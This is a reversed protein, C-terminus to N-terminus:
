LRCELEALIERKLAGMKQDTHQVEGYLAVLWLRGGKWDGVHMTAHVANKSAVRLPGAVEHVVGPAAPELNAKCDDPLNAPMGKEDSRWLAVASAGREYADRTKPHSRVVSLWYIQISGYGGGGYGGGGGGSGDGDGYGYGGGGGGYGGGGGGSGDGDGYGGGGYGDGDGYGYGGGGYGDGDGYGYGGGGYGGGGYGGDGGYGGGYGGGGYGGGGGGGGYGGGGGGYGSLTDLDIPPHGSIVDTQM